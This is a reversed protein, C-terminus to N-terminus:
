RGIFYKGLINIYTNAYSPSQPRFGHTDNHVIQMGPEVQTGEFWENWTEILKFHVNASALKHVAIEFDTVNRALKPSQHYQWFGPSVFASFGQDQEFRKIPNYEYWGDMSNPNAGEYLPDVKMVIYFGTSQRIMSWRVLDNLGSNFVFIVPKGDIKLYYPSSAYKEKIYNLDNTLNEVPPDSYGELEYLITWKFSPYPNNTNPMIDNIIYSFTKDSTSGIGWWSSIGFQIGAQKMWGLQKTLIHQDQSEYLNHTPDFANPRPGIDPLYNSAWTIPPKHNDTDWGEYLHDQGKYWGYYFTGVLETSSSFGYKSSSSPAPQVPVTIATAYNGLSITLITILVAATISVRISRRKALQYQM